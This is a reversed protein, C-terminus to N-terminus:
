NTLKKLYGYEKEDGHYGILSKNEYLIPENNASCYLALRFININNMTNTIYNKCYNPMKAANFIKFREYSERDLANSHDGQFIIISNKDLTNITDILELVQKTVCIYADRYLEPNYEKVNNNENFNLRKECNKNFLYPAHPAFHHVFFLGKTKKSDTNKMYEKLALMGNNKYFISQNTKVLFKEVFKRFMEDIFTPELFKYFINPLLNSANDLKLNEDNSKFDFNMESNGIIKMFNNNKKLYDFVQLSNKDKYFISNPFFSNRSFYRKSKEDLFYNANMLGTINLYTINYASLSNEIIRFDRSIIEKEFGNITSLSEPFQKNFHNLSSQEDLVILYINEKLGNTPLQSKYFITKKTGYVENKINLNQYASLYTYFILINMFIVITLKIKNLYKFLIFFSSINIILILIFAIIFSSNTSSIFKENIFNRLPEHYFIQFFLLSFIFFIDKTKITNKKFIAIKLLLATLYLMLYIFLFLLSLYLIESGILEIYNQPKTFLLFPTLLVVFTSFNEIIKKNVWNITM